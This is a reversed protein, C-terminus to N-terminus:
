AIGSATFIHSRRRIKSRILQHFGLLRLSEERWDRTNINIRPFVKLGQQGQGSHFVSVMEECLLATQYGVQRVIRLSDVSHLGNPFAFISPDQGTESM